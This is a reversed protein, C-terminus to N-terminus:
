KTQKKKMLRNDSDRWAEKRLLFKSYNFSLKPLLLIFNAEEVM